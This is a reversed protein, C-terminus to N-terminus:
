ALRRGQGERGGDDRRPVGEVGQSGETGWRIGKYLEVRKAAIEKELQPFLEFQKEQKEVNHYSKKM